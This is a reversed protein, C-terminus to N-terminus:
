GKYMLSYTRFIFYVHALSFYLYMDMADEDEDVSISCSAQKAFSSCPNSSCTAGSGTADGGIGLSVLSLKLDLYKVIVDWNRHPGSTYEEGRCSV